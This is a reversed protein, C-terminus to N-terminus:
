IFGTPAHIKKWKEEPASYYKSKIIINNKILDSIKWSIPVLYLVFIM